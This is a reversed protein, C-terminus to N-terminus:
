KEEGFEHDIVMARYVDPGLLVLLIATADDRSLEPRLDRKLTLVDVMQRYGEQRLRESLQQFATIEPDDGLMQVVSALPTVRKLIAATAEVAIMLARSFDPEQEM